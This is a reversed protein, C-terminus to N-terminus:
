SSSVVPCPPCCHVVYESSLRSFVGMGVGLNVMVLLLSSGSVFRVIVGFFLKRFWEPLGLRGLACDLISRDVTDCSEIVDAVMVHM